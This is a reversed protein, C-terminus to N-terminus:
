AASRLSGWRHGVEGESVFPVTTINYDIPVQAMEQRVMAIADNRVVNGVTIPVEMIIADHVLNVIRVDMDLLARWLRIAAHLTIDSAVSQPPFNAAENRLFNINQGSVLGARKKRGFQTTITQGKGPAARCQSIFKSAIPYRDHWGNLMDQAVQKTDNIQDMLGFPSIGYIIGFNVNKCKTYQEKYISYAPNGPDANYLGYGAEWGEFLHIALDKHPSGGSLFVECLTPDKSFAALARLEAQSLDVEALEYGPAAIFTGRIQPDRPPNQMNPDRAALRGTRTGHILFTAHLRNTSEIVYRRIGKVYTGYMKNAKRYKLLLAFIPHETLEQLKLLIPEATSGKKKNPLKMRRFLLEKVQKPSNPNIDYGIMENIKNGIDEKMDAFYTENDDLREKDTYIGNWEVQALM